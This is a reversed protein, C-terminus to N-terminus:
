STQFHVVLYANAIEDATLSRFDAADATRLQITWDGTAASPPAVAAHYHPANGFAPDPDADATAGPLPVGPPAVKVAYADNGPRDVFLDVGAVKIATGRTFFPFQEPLLTVTLTQDTDAPPNLFRAWADSFENKLAFLRMGSAPLVAALNDAAAAALEADGPQATYRVHLIVDSITSLDFANATKPMSITWESVAGAGEFPFYREDSFSLEFMGNDNQGHSTAISDCAVHGTAFRADGPDATLPDGYPQGNLGPAVRVANRTLTLTAHVGSYPGVVAPVTMAVSTIRRRYHGPFDLDFLWEPLQV